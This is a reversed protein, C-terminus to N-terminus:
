EAPREFNLRVVKGFCFCIELRDLVGRGILFEDGFAAARVSFTAGELVLKAPWSDARFVQRSPLALGIERGPRVIERGLGFPILVDGSFGTDPIAESIYEENEVYLAFQIQPYPIEM